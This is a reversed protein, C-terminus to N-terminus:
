TQNQSIKFMKYTQTNKDNETKKKLTFAPNKKM